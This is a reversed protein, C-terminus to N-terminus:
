KLFPQHFPLYVNPVVQFQLLQGGLVCRVTLIHNDCNNYVCTHENWALQWMLPLQFDLTLHTLHYKVRLMLCIGVKRTAPMGLFLLHWLIAWWWCWTPGRLRAGHIGNAILFVNGSKSNNEFYNMWAKQMQIAKWFSWFSFYSDSSFM